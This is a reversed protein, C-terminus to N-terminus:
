LRMRPFDKSGGAARPPTVTSLWTATLLRGQGSGKAASPPARSPKQARMENKGRGPHPQSHPYGDGRRGAGQHGEARQPPGQPCSPHQPHQRHTSSSSSRGSGERQGPFPLQHGWPQGHGQPKDCGPAVPVSSEMGGPLNRSRSPRPLAFTSTSPTLSSALDQRSSKDPEEVRNWSM